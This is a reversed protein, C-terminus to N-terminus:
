LGVLTEASAVSPHGAGAGVGDLWVVRAPAKVPRASALPVQCSNMTSSELPSTPTMVPPQLTVRVVSAAALAVLVVTVLESVVDVVPSGTVKVAVTLAPADGTVAPVTCNALSPTLRPAGTGSFPDPRAERVVLVSVWPVCRIRAVKPPAVPKRVLLPDTLWRTSLAVVTVPRVNQLVPAILPGCCPVDVGHGDFTNTLPRPPLTVLTVALRLPSLWVAGISKSM